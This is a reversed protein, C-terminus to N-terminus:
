EHGDDGMENFAIKALRTFKTIEVAKDLAERREPRVYPKLARILQSKGDDRHSFEGMLRTMLRLMNPDLGDLGPLPASFPEPDGTPSSSPKSDGSLSKALNMIKEMEAPNGLISNLKEEFDDM